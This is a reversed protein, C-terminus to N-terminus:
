KSHKWIVYRDRRWVHSYWPEKNWPFRSSWSAAVNAWIAYVSFMCCIRAESCSDNQFKNSNSSCAISIETLYPFYDYCVSNKYKDIVNKVQLHHQTVEQYRTKLNTPLPYSLTSQWRSEAHTINNYQMGWWMACSGCSRVQYYEAICCGFPICLYGLRACVDVIVMSVCCIMGTLVDPTWSIGVATAEGRFQIIEM